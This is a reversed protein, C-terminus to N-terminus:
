GFPECEAGISLAPQFYFQRRCAPNYVAQDAIKLHSFYNLHWARQM